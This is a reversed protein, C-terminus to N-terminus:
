FIVIPKEIQWIVPSDKLVSRVKLFSKNNLIQYVMDESVLYSEIKLSEEEKLDPSIFGLFAIIPNIEQDGGMVLEFCVVSGEDLLLYDKDLFGTQSNVMQFSAISPEIISCINLKKKELLPSDYEKVVKWFDVFIGIYESHIGDAIDLPMCNPNDLIYLVSAKANNITILSFDGGSCIATKATSYESDEAFSALENFGRLVFDPLDIFGKPAELIVKGLDDKDFNDQNTYYTYLGVIIVLFLILTGSIIIYKKNM